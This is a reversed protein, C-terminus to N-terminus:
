RYIPKVLVLGISYAETGEEFSDRDNTGINQRSTNGIVSVCFGLFGHPSIVHIPMAIKEPIQHHIAACPKNHRRTRVTASLRADNM